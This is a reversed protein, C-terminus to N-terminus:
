PQFSSVLAVFLKITATAITRSVDRPNRLFSEHNIKIHPTLYPSKSFLTVNLPLAIISIYYNRLKSATFEHWQTLLVCSIM